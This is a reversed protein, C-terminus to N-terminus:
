MLFAPVEWAVNVRDFVFQVGVVALPGIVMLQFLSPVVSVTFWTMDAVRARETDDLAVLKVVNLTSATIVPM